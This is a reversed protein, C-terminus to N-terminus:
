EMRPALFFKVKKEGEKEVYEPEIILPYDNNFSLKLKEASGTSKIIRMLYDSPYSSKSGGTSVLEVCNEREIILEADESDTKSSIVFRSDEISLRVSDRVDTTARLGKEIESRNVVVYNEPNVSPLKPATMNGYELLAISKSLNGMTFKLKGPANAVSITESSSGLKLVNKVRELELPIDTKESVDYNAFVSNSVFLDAMAVRASDIARVHIGDPEFEFKAEGTISNIIDIIEKLTGITTTVKM